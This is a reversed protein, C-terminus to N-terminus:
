SVIHYMWTNITVVVDVIIWEKSNTTLIYSPNWTETLGAYICYFNIILLYIVLLIDESGYSHVNWTRWLFISAYKLWTIYEAISCVDICYILCMVPVSLASELSNYTDMMNKWCINVQLLRRWVDVELCKYDCSSRVFFPLSTAQNRACLDKPHSWVYLHVTSISLSLSPWWSLSSSEFFSAGTSDYSSSFSSPLLLSSSSSVFSSLFLSGNYINKM